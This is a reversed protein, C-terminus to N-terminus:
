KSNMLKGGIDEKQGLMWDLSGSQMKNDYGGLGMQDIVTKEFISKDSM